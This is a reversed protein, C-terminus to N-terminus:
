SAEKVLSCPIPADGLHWPTEAARNLLLLDPAVGAVVSVTVALVTAGAQLLARDGSQLGLGAATIPAITALAPARPLAALDPSADALSSGAFLEPIVLLHLGSTTVEPLTASTAATAAPLALGGDGPVLTEIGKLAPVAESLRARLAVTEEPWGFLRALARAAPLPDSGPANLNFRRPPHDGAGTQLLPEGAPMVAALAQIQGANNVLLSPCESPATTPLFLDASAGIATPLYDAVALLDLRRLGDGVRQQDHSKRLPDAEVCVLAKIRGTEVEILLRDIDPGDGARHGCGFSNAAPLAIYAGCSRGRRSLKVATQLLTDIGTAGLLDGGGILVPREAKILRMRLQTLFIEAHIDPNVPADGTLAAAAQELRQPTLPLHRSPCALDAPRPDILAIEAGNRSAQRIAAGLLPAETLPACGIIILADSNRIDALTRRLPQPIRSAARAAHDRRAHSGLVVTEGRERAAAQLLAVTEFGARPSTLWAISGPGHASRLVDLRQALTDIAQEPTLLEGNHIANRPREGSNEFGKGFRGRDCLFGDNLAPNHGARIRQLERYRAGPITACGVGCHPCVSIAQQLDWNRSKFRWTRDTFVGTPCVEVLNGAFPSQLRGPAFRSFVVRQHVGFVGFDKGGFYDRYTRVCRYCRICRNMEQSIFPGLDQNAFTRKTGRYRRKSHGGAITMEQLQCEGGEDCVPCDHPHGLMLWESVHRRFEVVEATQTSVVMGDEAPLLCSMRIGKRRESEVHVACLRCAGVAGLVRHYCLHPVVIGLAEAAQLVSHGEPVTVSQNDITLTPM